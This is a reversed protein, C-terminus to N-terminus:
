SRDTPGPRRRLCALLLPIAVLVGLWLALRAIDEGSGVAFESGFHALAFSMPLLGLLTAVAFRWLKLPTLGAGYSVLDFSMFPVLRSVFVVVTLSNQSSFRGLSVVEGLYRRVLEYGAARAILFAIIAGLEAGIVIYLTGATHGYLAGAALAIPASPLPNLVVAVIMLSIVLLPGATGFSLITTRLSRADGLMDTLGLRRLALYSVVLLLLLLATYLLQRTVPLRSSGRPTENNRTTASKGPNGVTSYAERM